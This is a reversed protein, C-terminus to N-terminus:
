RKDAKHEHEGKLISAKGLRYALGGIHPSAAMAASKQGALEELRHRLEGVQLAGAADILRLRRLAGRIESYKIGARHHASASKEPNLFTMLATLVVSGVACVAAALPQTKLASIGASAALVASPIGLVLHIRRWVTAMAFHQKEAFLADEELREAERCIELLQDTM